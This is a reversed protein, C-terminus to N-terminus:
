RSKATRATVLGCARLARSIGNQTQQQPDSEAPTWTLSTERAQAVGAAARRGDTRRRASAAAGGPRDVRGAAAAADREGGPRRGRRAASRRRLRPRPPGPSIGPRAREDR